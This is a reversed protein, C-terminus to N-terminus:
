EKTIEFKFYANDEYWLPFNTGWVNNHLVFSIGDKKIDEVKNDYELIKGKGPSFLPSHYNRIIYSNDSKQLKVCRVAHLKKGGMGVVENPNIWQGTKKLLIDSDKSLNFHLYMAETLRNADKDFWYVENKLGNESLTYLLQILKPAGLQQCVTKDCECDILIGDVGNNQIKSAKVAKYPFRGSPYKGKVYKLLPRAFDGICWTITEKLDRTYNKLWFDYDSENFGRYEAFPLNNASILEDGAFTLTNINGYKNFTVEWEGARVSNNLSFDDGHVLSKKPILAEVANEAEQKHENSLYSIAKKIYERQEEWSKEIAKYSGKQHKGALRSTFITFNQPFDRFLHHMVVKDKARAKQFDPKLYHEYDAFHMKMDMGCTHEAVCLLADTFGIYEESNKIMSGDALWKNKLEILERLAASKYPDSAAGHIWTDGIEDTVVPLSDRKEWLRNAIEDMSGAEVTYGPFEQQIKDLKAQIKEKSPTGRNDLTHDFYLVEDILDSKFAGGYAGSYIVVVESDEVKWLFCPPVEALASAGNVGLHLLKIGHKSLMPVLGKTHGPVDTMKASVTKEGRIEDLKHIISLGYDLTDEDLLETHLTLPLAHPVLDRSKLAKKVNERQEDTGNELAEKIIWSGTTWVFSKKDDTNMQKSLNIAGPIFNNLYTDRIVNAYNTFGLDLHTKSVVIVKKMIKEGKMNNQNIM